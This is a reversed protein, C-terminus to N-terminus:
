RRDAAVELWPRARALRAPGIGRVRVLAEVSPFAGREARDAVVEAALQAGIGPVAALDEASAANLDVPRGLLVREPGTLPREPGPDGRCGIWGAPPTGRGSPECGPAGGGRGRSWARLAAPALLAALLLACAARAAV